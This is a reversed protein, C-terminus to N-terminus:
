KNIVLRAEELIGPVCNLKKIEKLNAWKFEEIEARDIVVDWDNLSVLYSEGLIKEDTKGFYAYTGIKKIIQNVQLNVEEKVERILAQDRTEDGEIRGGPFAWKNAHVAESFKRKILLVKKGDKSLIVANVVKKM